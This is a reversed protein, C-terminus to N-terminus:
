MLTHNLLRHFYIEAVAVVLTVISLGLVLGIRLKERQTFPKKRWAAAPSSRLRWRKWSMYLNIGAGVIAMLLVPIRIADRHLALSWGMLLAAGSGLVIGAKAVAVSFVCAAEIFALILVTWSRTLPIRGADSSIQDASETPNM